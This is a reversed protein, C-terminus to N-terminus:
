GNAYAESSVPVSRPTSNDRLEMGTAAERQNERDRVENRYQILASYIGEPGSRCVVSAGIRATGDSTIDALENIIDQLAVKSRLALSVMACTAAAWAALSSGAKGIFPQIEFANGNSDEMIIVHMTGDPTKVRYSWSQYVDGAM